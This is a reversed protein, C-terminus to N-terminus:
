VIEGGYNVKLNLQYLGAIKRRLNMMLGEGLM